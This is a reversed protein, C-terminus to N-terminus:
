AIATGEATSSAQAPARQEHTEDRRILAVAAIIGLLTFGAAALFASHFGLTLADAPAHSTATLHNTRSTAITALIALGLAGGIQQTTNILGSALGYERDHVGSVSPIM